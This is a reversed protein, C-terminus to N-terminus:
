ESNRISQLMVNILPMHLHIKLRHYILFTNQSFYKKGLNLFKKTLM